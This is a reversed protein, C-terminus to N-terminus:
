PAKQLKPRDHGGSVVFSIICFRIRKSLRINKRARLASIAALALPTYDTLEIKFEAVLDADKSQLNQLDFFCGSSKLITGNYTVRGCTWIDEITEAQAEKNFVDWTPHGRTSETQWNYAGAVTNGYIM